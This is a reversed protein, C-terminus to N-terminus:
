ICRCNLYWISTSINRNKDPSLDIINSPNSQDAVTSFFTCTSKPNETYSLFDKFPAIRYESHKSLIKTYKQSQDAMGCRWVAYTPLVSSFLPMLYSWPLVEFSVRYINHKEIRFHTNRSNWSRIYQKASKSIHAFLRSFFVDINKKQYTYGNQRLTWMESYLYILAINSKGLIDYQIPNNRMCRIIFM